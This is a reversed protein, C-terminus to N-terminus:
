ENDDGIRVTVSDGNEAIVKGVPFADACVKDDIIAVTGKLSFTGDPLKEIKLSGNEAAEAIMERKVSEEEIARKLWRSM